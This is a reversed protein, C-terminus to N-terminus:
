YYKALLDLRFWFEGVCSPKSLHNPWGAPLMLALAIWKQTIKVLSREVVMGVGDVMHTLLSREEQSALMVRVFYSNM